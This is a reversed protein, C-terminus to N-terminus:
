TEPILQSRSAKSVSSSLSCHDTNCWPNWIGARSGGTPVGVGGGWSGQASLRPKHTETRSRLGKSFLGQEWGTWETEQKGVDHGSTGAHPPHPQHELVSNQDQSGGQTNRERFHGNSVFFLFISMQFVIRKSLASVNEWGWGWLAGTHSPCCSNPFNLADTRVLAPPSALRHLQSCRRRQPWLPEVQCRHWWHGRFPCGPGGKIFICQENQQLGQKDEGAGWHTRSSIGGSDSLSKLILATMGGLTLPTPM